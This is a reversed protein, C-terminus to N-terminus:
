QPKLCNSNVRLFIKMILLYSVNFRFIKNQGMLLFQIVINNKSHKTYEQCSNEALGLSFLLDKFVLRCSITFPFFISKNKIWCCDNLLIQKMERFWYLITTGTSIGNSSFIILYSRDSYPGLFPCLNLMTCFLFSYLLCCKKGTTSVLEVGLGTGARRCLASQISSELYCTLWYLCLREM